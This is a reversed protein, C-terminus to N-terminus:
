ARVNHFCCGALMKLCGLSQTVQWFALALPCTVVRPLAAGAMAGLIGAPTGHIWGSAAEVIWMPERSMTVLGGVRLRAMTSCVLPNATVEVLLFLTALALDPVRGVPFALVKLWILSGFFNEMAFFQIRQALTAAISSELRRHWLLVERQRRFVSIFILMHATHLARRHNNYWTPCMLLLCLMALVGVPSLLGLYWLHPLLARQTPSAALYQYCLGGFGVTCHGIVFLTWMNPRSSLYAQFAAELEPSAFTLLSASRWTTRSSAQSGQSPQSESARTHLREQPTGPSSSRGQLAAFMYPCSLEAVM